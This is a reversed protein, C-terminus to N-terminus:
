SLSTKKTSVQSSLLMHWETSAIEDLCLSQYNIASCGAGAGCRAYESSRAARRMTSPVTGCDLCKRENQIGDCGGEEEFKGETRKRKSGREREM